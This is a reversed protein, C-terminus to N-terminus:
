TSSKYMYMDHLHSTAYDHVNTYVIDNQCLESTMLSNLSSKGLFINNCKFM